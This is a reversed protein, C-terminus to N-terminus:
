KEGMAETDMKELLHTYPIRASKLLEDVHAFTRQIKKEPHMPIPVIIPNGKLHTRLENAFVGALLVDQLFKFQHLYERM